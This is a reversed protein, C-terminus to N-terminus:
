PKRRTPGALSKKLNPREMMMARWAALAPLDKMVAAFKEADTAEHADMADFLLYDAHTPKTTGAAFVTASGKVLNEMFGFWLPAEKAGTFWADLKAKKDDASLTADLKIATLKGKLDLVGEAVMDIRALLAADGTYWGYKRGIYRFIAM